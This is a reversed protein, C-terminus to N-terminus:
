PEVQTEHGLFRLTSGKRKVTKLGHELVNRLIQATGLLTVKQILKVKITIVM